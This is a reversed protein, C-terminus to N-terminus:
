TVRQLLAEVAQLRKEITELSALTGTDAALQSQIEALDACIAGFVCMWDPTGQCSVECFQLDLLLADLSIEGRRYRGIDHLLTRAMRVEESDM